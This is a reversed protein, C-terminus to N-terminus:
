ELMDRLTVIDIRRSPNKIFIKRLASKVIPSIKFKKPIVFEKYLTNYELGEDGKLFPYSGTLLFFLCVGSAWVDSKYGTFSKTKVKFAKYMEPSIYHHSGAVVGKLTEGKPQIRSLGFDALKINFYKDMMINSLKIDLHVINKSHLYVVADLLQNIIDVAVIEDFYYKKQYSKGYKKLFDKLTIPYYEFYIYSTPGIKEYGVVRVINEHNLKKLLKYEQEYRKGKKPKSVKAVIKKRHGEAMYVKGYQGEGLIRPTIKYKTNM